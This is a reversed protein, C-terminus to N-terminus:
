FFFKEKLIKQASLKDKWFGDETIKNNFKQIKEKVKNEDFTGGLM